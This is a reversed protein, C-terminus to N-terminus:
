PSSGSGSPSSRIAVSSRHTSSSAMPLRIQTAVQARLGFEVAIVRRNEVAIIVVWHLGGLPAFDLGLEAVAVAGCSRAPPAVEEEQPM